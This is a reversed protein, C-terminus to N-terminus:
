FAASLYDEVINDRRRRQTDMVNGVQLRNVHPTTHTTKSRVALDFGITAFATAMANEIAHLYTVM